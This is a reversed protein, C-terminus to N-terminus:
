NPTDANWMRSPPLLSASYREFVHVAKDDGIFRENSLAGRERKRREVMESTLACRMWKVLNSKSRRTGRLSGLGV